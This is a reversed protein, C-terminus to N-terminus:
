HASPYIAEDFHISHSPTAVKSDKPLITGDPLVLGHEATIIRGGVHMDFSSMRQSERIASDMCTLRGVAAKTWKGSDNVTARVSEARLLNIYDEAPNTSLIDFVAQTATITSSDNAAFNVIALRTALTQPEREILSQNAMASEISWTLFDNPPKLKDESTTPGRALAVKRREIEPTMIKTCRRIHHRLPETSFFAVIPHLFTPIKRIVNGSSGLLDTITNAVELLEDDRGLLNANTGLSTPKM